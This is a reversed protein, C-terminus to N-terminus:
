YSPKNYKILKWFNLIVTFIYSYQGKIQTNVYRLRLTITNVVKEDSHYFMQFFCSLPSLIIKAWPKLPYLRTALFAHYCSPSTATVSASNPFQNYWPPLWSAYVQDFCPYPLLGAGTTYIQAWVLVILEPGFIWGIRSMKCKLCYCEERTKQQSRPMEYLSVNLADKFIGMTKCNQIIWFKLSEQSEPFDRWYSGRCFWVALNMTGGSLLVFLDIRNRFTLM